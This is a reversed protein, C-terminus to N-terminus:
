FLVELKCNMIAEYKKMIEDMELNWWQLSLLQDITQSDFRKRIVKAPNGAVITYPEVDKTVVSRAGIIAGDSIKIGPMILADYGIWVDNGVITDNKPKHYYRDDPIVELYNKVEPKTIFNWFLPYTTFANLHHNAGSMLFKCQHALCCFKGIKLQSGVGVYLVNTNEFEEPNESSFSADYYTYDGIQIFDKTIFHKLFVTKKCEGLTGDSNKMPLYKLDKNLM